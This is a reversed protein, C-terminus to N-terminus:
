SIGAFALKVAGLVNDSVEVVGVTVAPTYHDSGGLGHTASPVLDAVRATHDVCLLDNGLGRCALLFVFLFVFVLYGGKPTTIQNKSSIVNSRLTTLHACM